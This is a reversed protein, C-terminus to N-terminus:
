HDRQMVFDILHLMSDSCASPGIAEIVTHLNERALNGYKQAFSYAYEISGAENMMELLRKTKVADTETSNFIERAAAGDHQIFHILPLTAKGNRLDGGQEKGLVAASTTYDLIDDVIQFAMGLAYGYLRINEVLDPNLGGLSAGSASAAGMLSATKFEILQLYEEQSTEAPDNDTLQKIEGLCMHNTARMMHFQSDISKSLLLLEYAKSLLLDGMLVAVSNGWRDPVSQLGRRMAAQDIIDDHVLTALHVLEVAISVQRVPEGKQNKLGAALQVLAARIWKGPSQLLHRSIHKVIEVKIKDEGDGELRLLSEVFDKENSDLLLCRYLDKALGLEVAVPQFIDSLSIKQPHAQEGRCASSISNM